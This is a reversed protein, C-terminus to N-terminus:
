RHRRRIYVTLGAALVIVPVLIVFFVMFRIVWSDSLSFTNGVFSKPLTTFSEEKGTLTNILNVMFANNNNGYITLGTDGIFESSGMALVSSTYEETGSYVTKKSLLINDYSQQPLGASSWGETADAAQIVCTDTSALLSETAFSGRTEFLRTLPHTYANFLPYNANKVGELYPSEPDPTNSYIFRSGYYVNDDNTEYLYGSDIGIGWEELFEDLNDLDTYVPGAAIVLQRGLKGGNNLFADLKQLDAPNYDTTPANMVILAADEPFEETMINRTVVEYGNMTLLESFTEPETEGHGTLVVATLPNADTVQMIASTIVEEAKSSSVTQTGSYYDGSTNFLDNLAYYRSREGSEVIIGGESLNYEPYQATLSPNQVLNLYEVTVHSSRQRYQKLTEHAQMTYNTNEFQNEEALVTIKVDQELSNLFDVSEDSLQYLNENTLDLTLPFRDLLLSVIVNVAVVAALFIILIVTSVSGFRMKKSLKM